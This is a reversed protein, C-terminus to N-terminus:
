RTGCIRKYDSPGRVILFGVGSGINVVLYPYPNKFDFPVKECLKPDDPSKWYYCEPNNNNSDIYHIGEILCDLEDFRNLKLNM